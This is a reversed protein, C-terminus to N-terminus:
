EVINAEQGRRVRKSEIVGVREQWPVLLDINGEARGIMDVLARFAHM